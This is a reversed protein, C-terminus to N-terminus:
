CGGTDVGAPESIERLLREHSNQVGQMFLGGNPLVWFRGYRVANVIMRGADEGTIGEACLDRLRFLLDRENEKMSRDSSNDISDQVMPTAIPGPCVVTVGIPAQLSRLEEDLAQSLGVIGFKSATYPVKLGVPMLGAMSSTNIVHGPEGGAIMRPVFAQIGHVCGFLNTGIVRHWDELPTEWATGISSTGANNFLLHVAGFARYAEDALARVSAADAVDTVVGLVDAGTDARIARAAEDIRDQRCDALVIRAGARALTIAIGAGIGSGGGTVVAVKDRFDRL